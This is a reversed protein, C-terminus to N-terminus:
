CAERIIDTASCNTYQYGRKRRVFESVRSNPDDFDNTYREFNKLRNMRSKPSMETRKIKAPMSKLLPRFLDNKDNTPKIKSTSKSKSKALPKSTSKFDDNPLEAVQKVQNVLANISIGSSYVIGSGIAWRANKLDACSIKPPNTLVISGSKVDDSCMITISKASTDKVKEVAEVEVSEVPITPIAPPATPITGAAIATTSMLGLVFATTVIKM